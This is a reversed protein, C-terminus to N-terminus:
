PASTSALLKGQPSGGEGRAPEQGRPGPQPPAKGTTKPLSRKVKMWDFTQAAAAPSHQASGPRPEKNDPLPPSLSAFYGPPEPGYLHPQFHGAPGCFGGDSLSGLGPPSAAANANPPYAAASPQFYAGDTEQPGLYFHHSGFGPSCSPAPFAGGAPTSPGAFSIGLGAPSPPLPPPPYGPSQQPAGSAGVGAAGFRGDAAYGDCAPSPGGSCAAFSPSGPELPQYDKPAYASSTGRSCIAYDLFFNM